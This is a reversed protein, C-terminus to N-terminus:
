EKRAAATQAVYDKGYNEEIYEKASAKVEDSIRTSDTRLYTILGITGEGRSQLVKM